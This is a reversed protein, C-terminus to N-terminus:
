VRNMGHRAGACSCDCRNKRAEWCTKQCKKNPNFTLFIVPGRSHYHQECDPCKPQLLEDRRPSRIRMVDSPWAHGQPCSLWAIPKAVDKSSSSAKKHVKLKAIRVKQQGYKKIACRNCLVNAPLLDCDPCTMGATISSGDLAM